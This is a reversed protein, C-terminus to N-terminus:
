SQSQSQSQTQVQIQAPGPWPPDPDIVVARGKQVNIQVAVKAAAAATLTSRVPAADLHDAGTAVRVYRDTPCLNATPDFGIWGIGDVFAELWAHSRNQATGDAELLYGRVYRAPAGISRAAAVAVHAIDRASGDGSRITEVATPHHGPRVAVWAVAKHLRAMIAHLTSLREGHGKAAAERALAQIEPGCRTLATDRLYYGNPLRNVAGKVVGATDITDIEGDVAIRMSSLPGEAFVTHTINGHADESRDLRADVDIEVRWRKVFQNASSRPTLRLVLIAASSPEEYDFTMEHRIKLRM